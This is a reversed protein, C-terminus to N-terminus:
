SLAVLWAMYAIGGIFTVLSAIKGLDAWRYLRTSTSWVFHFHLFLAAGLAATGLSIAPTGTLELEM